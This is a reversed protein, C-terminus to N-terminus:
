PGVRRVHESEGLLHGGADNEEGIAWGTFNPDAPALDVKLVRGRAIHGGSPSFTAGDDLGKSVEPLILDVGLHEGDQASMDGVGIERSQMFVEDVSGCPDGIQQTRYRCVGGSWHVGKKLEGRGATEQGELLHIGLHAEM